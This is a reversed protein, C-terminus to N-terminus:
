RGIVVSRVPPLMAPAMMLAPQGALYSTPFAAWPTLLNVQVTHPAVVTVSSTDFVGRMAQGSLPAAIADDINAKM